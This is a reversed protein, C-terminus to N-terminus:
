CMRTPAGQGCMPNGEAVSGVGGQTLTRVNGFESLKPPSYAARGKTRGDRQSVLQKADSM